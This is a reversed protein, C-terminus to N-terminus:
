GDLWVVGAPGDVSYAALATALNEYIVIPSHGGLWISVYNRDPYEAGLALVVNEESGEAVSRVIVFRRFNGLLAQEAAAFSPSIMPLTRQLQEATQRQALAAGAAASVATVAATTAGFRLLFQRRDIAGEPTPPPEAAPLAPEADPPPLEDSNPPPEPLAAPAAVPIMMRGLAYALALGWALCLVALWVADVVDPWTSRGATLSVFILPAAFLLGIVVGDIVDPRRGRRGALAYFAVGYVLSLATFLSLSLVTGTITVAQAPNQGAAILADNLRATLTIWFTNGSRVLWDTLDIPAFPLGLWQHGLYMVSVLAATLLLIILLASLIGTRKM